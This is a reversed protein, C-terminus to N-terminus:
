KGNRNNSERSWKSSEIENNFNSRIHEEKYIESDLEKVEKSVEKNSYKFLLYDKLSEDEVNNIFNNIDM